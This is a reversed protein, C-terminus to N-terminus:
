ESQVDPVNGGFIIPISNDIKVASVSAPAGVPKSVADPISETNIMKEIPDHKITKNSSRASM